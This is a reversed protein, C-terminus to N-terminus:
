SNGGEAPPAPGSLAARSGDAARSGPAARRELRALLRRHLRDFSGNSMALVHDGPRVMGAIGEILSETDSRVLADPGLAEALPWGLDGPDLAAVVDAPALSPRLAARHVGLRMTNSRPELVAVIRGAEGTRGRLAEITARIATPHHAFDDYVTVGGAAGAVELRRRVGEFDALAAAGEEFDVGAAAHVAALAAAANHLNHLGPLKWGAEFRRERGDEIARVEFRSGDPELPRVSLARRPGAADVAGGGAGRRDSGRGGAGPGDAGFRVVPTWCGSALVREVAAGAGCVICGSRPVTRVVHHFQREIAALDDFVDAHDYELNNVVLTRPRYHVFKSRKDFFATDYEDAEIVFCRGRGLRGPAGLGPAIGGILWGPARGTRELIWAALSSVTTKGHTGAVAIVHRGLLAHRALWAPASEYDIGEDLMYEVAPNGRSLANGVLVRDPAPHLHEARYGERVPIGAAELMESMPPYLGTDSGEVEHGLERAICALPAMFTGGIGLLHIRM